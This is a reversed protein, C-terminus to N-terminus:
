LQWSVFGWGKAVFDPMYETYTARADGVAGLV